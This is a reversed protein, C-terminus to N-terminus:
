SGKFDEGAVRIYERTTTPSARCRPQWSMHQLFNLFITRSERIFIIFEHIFDYALSLTIYSLFM